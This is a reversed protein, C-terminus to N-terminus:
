IVSENLPTIISKTVTAWRTTWDYILTKKARRRENEKKSNDSLTLAQLNGATYGKEEIIRDVSYSMKSKGVKHLYETEVCFSEFQEFTLDFFIGRRKSNDKLHQWADRM